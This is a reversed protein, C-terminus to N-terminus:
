DGDKWPKLKSVSQWKPLTSVSHAMVNAKFASGRVDHLQRKGCRNYALVFNSTCRICHASQENLIVIESSKKNNSNTSGSYTKIKFIDQHLKLKVAMYAPEPAKLSPQTLACAIDPCLM